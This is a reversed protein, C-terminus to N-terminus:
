ASKWLHRAIFFLAVGVGAMSALLIFVDMLVVGVYQSGGCLAVVSAILSLRIRGFINGDMGAIHQAEATVDVPSWGATDIVETVKGHLDYIFLKDNHIFNQSSVRLSNIGYSDLFRQITYPEATALTWMSAHAGYQKGYQHLIAPSDYQPDLTVEVLHFHKPDLHSQLYAFKGSIAPCLNKDPCRTFIFSVLTVKGEFSRLSLLQGDQNVIPDTFLQTGIDVPTALARDPMGPVFRGNIAPHTWAWTAHSRDVIGDLGTGLPITASFSKPLAYTRTGAAFEGPVADTAIVATNGNVSLLTGHAPVLAPAIAPLTLLAALLLPKL